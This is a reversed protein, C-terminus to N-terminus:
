LITLEFEVQPFGLHDLLITTTSPEQGPNRANYSIGRYVHGSDVRTDCPIIERAM